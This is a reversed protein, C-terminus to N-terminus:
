LADHWKTGFNSKMEEDSPEYDDGYEEEEDDDEVPVFDMLIGFERKYLRDFEIERCEKYDKGHHEEVKTFHFAITDDDSVNHQKWIEKLHGVTISPVDSM